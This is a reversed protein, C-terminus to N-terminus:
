RLFSEVMKRAREFSYKYYIDITTRISSHGAFEKVVEASFGNNVLNTIYTHRFSHVSFPIGLKQSLRYTFVQLTGRNVHFNSEYDEIWKLLRETVLYTSEKDYSIVPAIREKKRKTIEAPLRIWLISSKDMYFNNKDIAAYESLRLGTSLLLTYVKEYRSGKVHNLIRQAGEKTLAKPVRYGVTHSLEERIDDVINEVETYKEKSIFGRKLAFKYFHKIASLHTLTSSVSLNSRDVYTYITKPDVQTIDQEKIGVHKIFSELAHTYTVLTRDSKVKNLNAKWLKFVDM